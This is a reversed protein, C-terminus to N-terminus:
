RQIIVRKAPFYVSAYTGKKPTSELKLTGGHMHMLSQCISLGLGTGRRPAGILDDTQEFPKLVEDIKEAAIGIGTDAVCLRLRGDKQLYASFTIRGGKPTFKAANSLLNILVQRVRRGDAHLLVPRPCPVVSLTLGGDELMPAVTEASETMLEELPERAEKLTVKQAEIKSVDLVDDVLSLLHRGSKNIDEIYERHKDSTLAGLMGSLMFESYGIVTNLPTRLEHSMNALFRSKAKNARAAEDLAKQRKRNILFLTLATMVLFLFAISFFAIQWKYKEITKVEQFRILADSHIRLPDIGFRMLQRWDYSRRWIGEYLAPALGQELGSMLHAMARGVKEGSIMYGGTAGSGVLSEWHTFIPASSFVALRRFLYHPPVGEELGKSLIPLFFVASEPPLSALKQELENPQLDILYSVPLDPAVTAMAGQFDRWIKRTTETETDVAVYVHEPQGVHIMEKIAAELNMNLPFVFGEEKKLPREPSEIYNMFIREAQKQFDPLRRMLDVAPVHDAVIMDLKKDKYKEKLYPLFLDIQRDEGFRMTDMYETYLVFARGDEKLGTRLGKEVSQQWPLEQHWSNVLLVALPPPAGKATAFLIDHLALAKPVGLLLVCFFVACAIFRRMSYPRFINGSAM